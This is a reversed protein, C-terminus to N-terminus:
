RIGRSEMYAELFDRSWTVFDGTVDGIAIVRDDALEIRVEIPREARDLNTLTLVPPYTPEVTPRPPGSETVQIMNTFIGLSGYALLEEVSETVSEDLHLLDIVQGPAEINAITEALQEWETAGPLPGALRRTLSQSRDSLALWVHNFRRAAEAAEQVMLAALLARHSSDALFIGNLVNDAVIQPKWLTADTYRRLAELDSLDGSLSATTM